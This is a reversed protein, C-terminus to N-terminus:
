WPLDDVPTPLLGLAMLKGRCYSEHQHEGFAMERREYEDRLIADRFEEFRLEVAMLLADRNEMLLLPPFRITLLEAIEVMLRDIGEFKQQTRASLHESIQRSLIEQQKYDM